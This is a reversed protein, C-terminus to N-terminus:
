FFRERVIIVDGPLVRTEQRAEIRGQNSKRQIYFTDERARYTFGHAIAVANIVTMGDVYPYSGPNRVEGVIYFPRYSLIEVNVNPERMYEKLKRELLAELEKSTLGRAKVEGILPFSFAGTGDVQYDNSLTKDGFVNVRVKDGPGLHYDTQALFAIAPEPDNGPACAALPILLAVIFMMRHWRRRREFPPRGRIVKAEIDIM